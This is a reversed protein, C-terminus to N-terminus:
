KQLQQDAGPVPQEADGSVSPEADDGSIEPTMEPQKDSHDQQADEDDVKEVVSSESSGTNETNMVKCSPNTSEFGSEAAYVNGPLSLGLILVM